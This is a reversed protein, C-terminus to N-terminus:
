QVKEARINRKRKVTGKNQQLNKVDEWYPRKKSRALGLFYFKDVVAVRVPLDESLTCAVDHPSGGVDHVEDAFCAVHAEPPLNFVNSTM